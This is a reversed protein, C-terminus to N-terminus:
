GEDDLDFLHCLIQAYSPKEERGSLRKLEVTPQHLVKNVIQRSMAEVVGRDRPSLGALKALATRVESERLAHVHERLRAITPIAHFGRLEQAFKGAEVAVIKEASGVERVRSALNEAVITQLGDIDYLYVNDLAAVAPDIDRPVAIDILFLSRSRRMRMIAAVDALRVVYHPAATSSIVIDVEAMAQRFEEFTTAKGGLKKAFEDARGHHRSSVLISGVGESALRQATLEAMKGAGLLLISSGCLGRLTKRALEVAVGPVSTAATAIDTETRVRKAVRVARNFLANFLPGSAGVELAVRFAEKVQGLVQPEGVVMSDLGSAVRFAHDVCAEAVHLYLGGRLDGLSLGSRRCLFAEIGQRAKEVEGSAGYVEFRNCTSVIACEEVHPLKVFSAVAVPLDAPPVHLLERLGVPATKHSMGLVFLRQLLERRLEHDTHVTEGVHYLAIGM